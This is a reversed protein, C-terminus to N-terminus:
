KLSVMYAVLNDVDAPTLKHSKMWSAMSMPPRKPLKAEMEAPVTLWKKIDEASTKTGVGDLVFGTPPKMGVGKIQHCTQCKLTAYAKAGAVVKPDDTAASLATAGIVASMLVTLCIKMLVSRSM